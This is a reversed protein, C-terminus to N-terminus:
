PTPRANGMHNQNRMAEPMMAGSQCMPCTGQGHAGQASALRTIVQAMLAIKADGSATNMKAVLDALDGAAPPTADASTDHQHEQAATTSPVSPTQAFVATSALLAVFVVRAAASALKSAQSEVPRVLAMLADPLVFGHGPQRVTLVPCPATRVVREAVSGMLAHAV